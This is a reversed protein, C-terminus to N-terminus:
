LEIKNRKRDYIWLDYKYGLSEASEKKELVYNKPQNTWNSKVEICRNQSKIYIDVYYRHRENNEDYYWIEPVRNRETIIDDESIKEEFLLEDLAFNEYGQYTISKGSPLKYFKTKYSNRLMKQAIKSNQSQHEVGYKIIITQKQKDKFDQCKMPNDVGYKKINTEVIKTKGIEKSCNECYGNIKLLQRFPKSFINECGINKCVGEIITDRNVFKNSYDDTLLINNEDCFEHLINVDYKVKSERIKNNAIKTMCSICYAGTKVLQRFNKNFNNECNNHVCKGEIYSERNVNEYSQLLTIKNTNCYEILTENNFKM